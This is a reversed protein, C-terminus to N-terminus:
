YFTKGNELNKRYMCATAYLLDSHLCRKEKSCEKFLSCCGFAPFNFSDLFVKNLVKALTKTDSYELFAKLDIRMFTPESAISCLSDKFLELLQTHRMSFSIYPQKGTLRVRCLLFKNSVGNRYPNNEVKIIISDYLGKNKQIELSATELLAPNLLNVIYAVITKDYVSM